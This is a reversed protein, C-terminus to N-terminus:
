FISLSDVKDITRKEGVFSSEHPREVECGADVTKVKIANFIAREEQGDM